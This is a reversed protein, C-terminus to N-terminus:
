GHSQSYKKKQRCILIRMRSFELHNIRGVAGYNQIHSRVYALTRQEPFTLTGKRRITTCFM